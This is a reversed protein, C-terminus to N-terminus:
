GASANSSSVGDLVRRFLALQGESTEDWSFKEAYRRTAARDPCSEFLTEISAAISAADRSPILVGAAAERVVEPTGDVATAAVPTGCGMAELLVNAWGERSSALVLADAAQMYRKLESQDLYGLLVVRDTLGLTEVLARLRSEEEGKGAILLKLDTFKELLRPLAEIVLHHGKREWLVGASLLIRGSLGLAARLTARDSAPSFFGLDVGNRLVTVKEREVGLDELYGVLAEAVTVIGAAHDAAWRIKRAPARYQPILNLDTGRGTIVVPKGFAQGLMVAAVGDPYFYHADVLDFDFGNRRLGAVHSRVAQYMLSPGLMMGFKPIVPFRPHTIELGLHNERDFVAALEAYQGFLPHKFPFWPVPAVVRVDFDVGNRRCYERLQLLRQRVFLGRHTLRNNPFLSSFTLVRM